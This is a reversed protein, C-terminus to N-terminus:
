HAADRDELCPEGVAFLPEGVRNYMRGSDTSITGTEEHWTGWESRAEGLCIGAHRTTHSVIVYGQRGDQTTFAYHSLIIGPRIAERQDHPVIRAAIRLYNRPTILVQKLINRMRVEERAAPETESHSM